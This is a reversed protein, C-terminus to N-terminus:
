LALRLVMGRAARPVARKPDKAESATMAVAETGLYSFTVVTLALWVAGLGNPLFGGHETLAATGVPERGPLGFIMYTLGLLVFIVITAVKVMAFWYEIEGFFRVAASNVVLMLVAFVI